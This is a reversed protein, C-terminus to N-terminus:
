HHHEGPSEEEEPMETVVAQTTLIMGAVSAANQLASCVTKTPDLIGAAALDEIQGTVANFGFNEGKEKVRSVIVSGDAGSNSAITRIPAQLARKIINIGIDEDGSAQIKDLEDASRLLAVGGGVVVGEEIAARTAALADEIRAKKEKLATETPAGVNVM